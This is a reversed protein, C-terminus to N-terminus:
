SRGAPTAHVALWICGPESSTAAVRHKCRRPLFVWEGPELSKVAGNEFAITARGELLLVWEDAEQDYWQGPPTTHGASLIKEIRFTREEYLTTFREGESAPPFPEDHVSGSRVGPPFHKM